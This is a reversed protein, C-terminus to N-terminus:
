QAGVPVQEKIKEFTVEKFDDLPLFYKSDAYVKGLGLVGNCKHCSCIADPGSLTDGLWLAIHGCACEKIEQIMYVSDKKYEYKKGFNSVASITSLCIAKGGVKFEAM